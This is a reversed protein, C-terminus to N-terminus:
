CKDQDFGMYFKTYSKMFFIGPFGNSRRKYDRPAEDAQERVFHSRGVVLVVFSKARFSSSTSLLPQIKLM